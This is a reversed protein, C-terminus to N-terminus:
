QNEGTNEISAVLDLQVEEGHCNKVKEFDLEYVDIKEDTEEFEVNIGDPGFGNFSGMVNMPYVFNSICEADKSYIEINASNQNNKVSYQIDSDSIIVYDGYSHIYKGQEVDELWVKEDTLDYNMSYIPLKYEEDKFYDYLGILMRDKLFAIGSIGVTEDCEKPKPIEKNEKTETDYIYYKVSLQKFFSEEDTMKYDNENAIVNYVVYNKYARFRDFTLVNHDEDSEFIVEANKEKMKASLPLAKAICKTAVKKEKSGDEKTITVDTTYSPQIVYYLVGRHLLWNYIPMEDETTFITDVKSGDKRLRYLSDARVYYVDGEYYQIYSNMSNFVDMTAYANCESKKSEMNEKDHLCNAKNCVPSMTHNKMNYYYIFNNKFIYQGEGDSQVMKWSSVSNDYSYQCDTEYNYEGEYVKKENCSCMTVVCVGAILFSVIKKYMKM